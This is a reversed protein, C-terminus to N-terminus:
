AAGLGLAAWDRSVFLMSAFAAGATTENSRCGGVPLWYSADIAAGQEVDGFGARLGRVGDSGTYSNDSLLMVRGTEIARWVKPVPDSVLYDGFAAAMRQRLGAAQDAGYVYPDGGSESFERRAAEAAREIVSAVVRLLDVSICQAGARKSFRSVVFCSRM